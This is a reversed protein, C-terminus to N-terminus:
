TRHRRPPRRRDRLDARRAGAPKASTAPSGGSSRFRGATQPSTPARDGERASARPRRFTSGPGSASTPRRGHRLPEVRSDSLSSGTPSFSSAAVFEGDTTNWTVQGHTPRTRGIPVSAGLSAGWRDDTGRSITDVGTFNGAPNSGFPGPFGRDDHEFRIEGRVTAGAAGRWGANGGADTREYEDNEVREGASTTQGNWGDTSLRDLAPVGRVVPRGNRRFQRCRSHHRVNGGRDVRRGSCTRRESTVIRVVGGIANSGYLASQPGRVVEIRDINTPSLHAFDFGGGFANLQIGDLVRAHLGVRRRAPLDSTLSGPGGSQAITLGPVQRLADAVTTM